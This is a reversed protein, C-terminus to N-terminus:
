AGENIPLPLHSPVPRPTILHNQYSSANDSILTADKIFSLEKIIAQFGVELLGIVTGSDQVNSDNMIQDIYVINKYATSELEDWLYFIIAMGHWGLGRKGYHEVTSERSSRVEYKM